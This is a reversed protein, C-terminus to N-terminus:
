EEHKRRADAGVEPQCLELRPEAHQQEHREGRQRRDRLAGGPVGGSGGRDHAGEPRAAVPDCEVGDIERAHLVEWPAPPLPARPPPGTLSSPLTATTVPAPWPM